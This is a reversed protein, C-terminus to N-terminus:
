NAITPIGGQNVPPESPPPLPPPDIVAVTEAIVEAEPEPGQMERLQEPTLLRSEVTALQNSLQELRSSLATFAATTEAQQNSAKMEALLQRIEVMESQPNTPPPSSELLAPEKTEKVEVTVGM